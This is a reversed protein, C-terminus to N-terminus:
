HTLAVDAMRNTPAANSAPAIERRPAPPAPQEARDARDALPETEMRPKRGPRKASLEYDFARSMAKNSEACFEVIARHLDRGTVESRGERQALLRAEDAADVLYPFPMRPSTLAYGVLLKITTANAGPLLKLAVSEIDKETPREPLTCFRKVRGRLQDATWTTQKEARAMRLAFQPTCVLGVPVHHNYLATNLWDVLEPRSYVRESSSFLHHAEDIVIMLRSRQLVDEIRTQMETSSRAYSSGIGLVKALARFLGTKHTIGSLSLFRAQGSHMECWAEAATTKGIRANGEIVVMKGTALGVDLVDFVKKGISTLVFEGKVAAAHRRQYEFLASVIDRFYPLEASHYTPRNHRWDGEIADTASEAYQEEVIIKEYASEDETEGPAPFTLKPNICLEIIFGPLDKLKRRFDSLFEDASKRRTPAPREPENRGLAEDLFSTDPQPTIEAEIARTTAADYLKGPKIGAKHMTATGIRDPFMALFKRCFEKLGGQKLSEAQLFYLLSRKAPHVMLAAKTTVANGSIGRLEVYEPSSLYREQSIPAAPTAHRTKSM